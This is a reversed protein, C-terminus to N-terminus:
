WDAEASVQARDYSATPLKNLTTEVPGLFGLLKRLIFSIRLNLSYSTHFSVAELYHQIKESM